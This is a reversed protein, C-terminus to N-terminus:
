SGFLSLELIGLINLGGASGQYGPPNGDSLCFSERNAAIRFYNVTFIRLASSRSAKDRYKEILNCIQHCDLRERDCIEELGSWIASELRLSTRRGSITVNRRLYQSDM